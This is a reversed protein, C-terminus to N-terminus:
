SLYHKKSFLINGSPFHALHCLFKIILFYASSQITCTIIQYRFMKLLLLHAPPVVISNIEPRRESVYLKLNAISLKTSIRQHGVATCSWTAQQTWDRCRSLGHQHIPFPNGSTKKERKSCLIGVSGTTSPRSAAAGLAALSTLSFVM